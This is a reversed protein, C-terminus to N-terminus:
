GRLEAEIEHADSLKRTKFLASKPIKVKLMPSYRSLDNSFASWSDVTNCPLSLKTLEIKTTKRIESLKANQLKKRWMFRTHVQADSAFSKVLLKATIDLYSTLFSQM